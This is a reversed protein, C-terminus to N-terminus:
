LLYGVYMHRAIMDVFGCSATRMFQSLASRLLPRGSARLEDKSLLVGVSRLLKSVSAERGGLCASYIKYLPELVYTVFTREIGTANCDRPSQHFRRTSPDLYCDGWLRHAFEEVSLNDGLGHDNGHDLYTAAFSPLTFFFGSRFLM